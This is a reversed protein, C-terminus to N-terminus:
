TCGGRRCEAFRSVFSESVHVVCHHSQLSSAVLILEEVHPHHVNGHHSCDANRLLTDQTCESSAVFVVCEYKLVDAVMSVIVLEAINVGATCHKLCSKGRLLSFYFCVGLCILSTQCSLWRCVVLSWSRQLWTKNACVM